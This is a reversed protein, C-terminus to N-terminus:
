PATAIDHSDRHLYIMQKDTIPVLEIKSQYESMVDRVRSDFWPNNLHPLPYFDVLELGTFDGKLLDKSGPTEIGTCYEIDPAAVISGASNGLYILENSQVRNRIIADAGTRRLHHMLYFTNGGDLFVAPVRNLVDAVESTSATALDLTEVAYQSELAHLNKSIYESMDITEGLAATPIYAITLTRKTRPLCSYADSFHSFLYM